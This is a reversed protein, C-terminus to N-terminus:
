QEIPGRLKNKEGNNKFYYRFDLTLYSGSVNGLLVQKNGPREYAAAIQFIPKFPMKFSAGLYFFGQKKTRYEFGVNGNAEGFFKSFRRGEHHFAEFSNIIYTKWVNSPLYGLSAGISANMYFKDTLKIYFLANVPIDYAIIRFETKASFQTIPSHINFDIGYNRQVFNLGTELNVIKHLGVRVTGGFSFGFQQHYKATLETGTLDLKSASIFNTSFLPKFQLGFYSPFREKKTDSNDKNSHKAKQSFSFLSILISLTLIIYKM